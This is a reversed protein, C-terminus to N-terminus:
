KGGGAAGVISDIGKGIKQAGKKVSGKAKDSVDGPSSISETAAANIISLLMKEGVFVFNVACLM